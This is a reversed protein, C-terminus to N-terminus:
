FSKVLHKKIKEIIKYYLKNSKHLEKLQQNVTSSLIRDADKMIWEQYEESTKINRSKATLASQAGMGGAQNMLCYKSRPDDMHEAWILPFYWGSIYGEETMGIRDVPFGRGDHNPM